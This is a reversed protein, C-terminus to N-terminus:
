VLFCKQKKCINLQRLIIQIYYPHNQKMHLSGDDDILFSFFFEDAVIKRDRGNYRFKIELISNEGVIGM